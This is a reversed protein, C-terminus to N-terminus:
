PVLEGGKWEGTYAVTGDANTYTGQGNAKGDKYGGTHTSGDAWTYTGQGNYLGAKFEGTYTEGDAWTM